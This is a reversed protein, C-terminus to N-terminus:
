LLITQGDYELKNEVAIDPDNNDDDKSCSSLGVFVSLQFLFTRTCSFLKASM